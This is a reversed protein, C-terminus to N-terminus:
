DFILDLLGDKLVTLVDDIFWSVVIGIGAGVVFGIFTGVGPIPIISGLVAGIMGGVNAGVVGGVWASAASTGLSLAGDLLAEGWSNGQQLNDYITVVVNIAVLAYGIANLWPAKPLSSLGKSPNVGLMAMDDIYSLTHSFGNNLLYRGVIASHVTSSFVDIVKSTHKLYNPVAPLSTFSFATKEGASGSGNKVSCGVSSVMGGATAGASGSSFTGYAVGVPNNGAYCYLNLGNVSDPNLSSANAPSIFRRWQPNYYRANLYYLGTDEDYYYSRYRIPNSDALDNNTTYGRTCNGYADYTYKVVINGSNDLIGIIDTGDLFPHWRLPM